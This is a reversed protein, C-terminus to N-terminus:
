NYNSRHHHKHDKHKKDKGSNGNHKEKKHKTRRPEDSDDHERRSSSRERNHSNNPANIRNNSTVASSSAGDKVPLPIVRDAYSLGESQNSSSANINRLRELEKEVTSKREIHDHFKMPAGGLGKVRETEVEIDEREITGKSLLMKMDDKDLGQYEVFKRKANRIGLADNLLDEDLARIKEREAELETAQQEKSKAYWTLDRGKQWRGVTANVSHGLYNERHIRDAKVDDWKFQNQGGRTGGVRYHNKTGKNGFM